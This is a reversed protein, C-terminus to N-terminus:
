PGDRRPTRNLEPDLDPSLPRSRKPDRMYGHSSHHNHTPDQDSERIEFQDVKTNLVWIDKRRDNLQKQFNM